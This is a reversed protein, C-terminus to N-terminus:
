KVTGTKPIFVSSDEEFIISPGSICDGPKLNKRNFIKVRKFSNKIFTKCHGDNKINYNKKITETNVKYDNNIISAEISINDIIINKGSHLFGYRKKYLKKFNKLCLSINNFPISIFSDTKEYKLSIIKNIKLQKTKLSPEGSSM